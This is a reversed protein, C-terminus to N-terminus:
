NLRGTLANWGLRAGTDASTNARRDWATLWATLWASEEACDWSGCWDEILRHRRHRPGRPSRQQATETQDAHIGDFGDHDRRQCRGVGQQENTRVASCFAKKQAPKTLSEVHTPSVVVRAKEVVVVEHAVRQGVLVATKSENLSRRRNPLRLRHKEVFERATAGVHLVTKERDDMLLPDLSHRDLPQDIAPSRHIRGASGIVVRLVLLGIEAAFREVRRERVAEVEDHLNRAPLHEGIDITFRDDAGGISHHRLFSCRRQACADICDSLFDVDDFSGESGGNGLIHPQDAIVRCRHAEDEASSAGRHKISIHNGHMRRPQHLRRRRDQVVGGPQRQFVRQRLARLPRTDVATTQHQRVVTRPLRHIKCSAVRPARKEALTARHTAGDPCDADFTKGRCFQRHVDGVAERFDARASPM